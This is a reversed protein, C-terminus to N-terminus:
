FNARLACYQLPFYKLLNQNRQLGGVWSINYAAGGGRECDRGPAPDGMDKSEIVEVVRKRAARNSNQNEYRLESRTPM